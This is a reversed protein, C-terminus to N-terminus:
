KKLEELRKRILELEQELMKAEDELMAIVTEKPIPPMWYPALPGYIGTWWWRPLWPFWRCRSRSWYLYTYPELLWGWPGMGYPM